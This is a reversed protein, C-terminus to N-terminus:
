SWTETIKKTIRINRKALEDIMAQGPVCAEPPFVGRDAIAGTALMQAIVSTPFATTRMMATMSTADDYYDVFEYTLSRETTGRRGAITARALVVDKERFDLKKHLLDAFFERNTKVSGGVMMPETTAFGLDLLTKMKECHGKYRITKYDLNRVKGALLHTLTSLGGSTNFAELEGFPEPFRIDELGSMPDIYKLEGEEIVAAQEVYENILGEVSFSIQYNLPPRPVQPLGGVRLHISDLEDLGDTGAVALINILGPALGCNPIITVGKAKAEPDLALQRQVVDNNGGLDCLHVGAEISARTVALNVSYSVASIVCHSGKMASILDRRNNVDLRVAHVGPGACKAAGTANQLNIDALVIEHSTGSHALDFAAASGMM